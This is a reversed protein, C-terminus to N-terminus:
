QINKIPLQCYFYNKLDDMGQLRSSHDHVFSMKCFRKSFKKSLMVRPFNTLHKMTKKREAQLTNSNSHHIFIDVM